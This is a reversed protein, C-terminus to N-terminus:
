NNIKTQNIMSLIKSIIANIKHIMAKILQGKFQSLFKILFPFKSLKGILHSKLEIQQIMNHELILEIPRLIIPQGKRYKSLGM